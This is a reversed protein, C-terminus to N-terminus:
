AQFAQIAAEVDSWNFPIQDPKVVYHESDRTIAFTRKPEVVPGQYDHQIEIFMGVEQVIGKFYRLAFDLSVGHRHLDVLTNIPVVYCIEQLLWRAKLIPEWTKYHWVCLHLYDDENIYKRHGLIFASNSWNYPTWLELKAGSVCVRSIEPFIHNTWDDDQVHELFHSSYVYEVSRDPLPIPDKTLNLVYDVGPQPFSDLGITGERKCGGCGLDIKFLSAKKLVPNPQIVM